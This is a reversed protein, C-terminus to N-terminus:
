TDLWYKWGIINFQILRRSAQATEDLSLPSSSDRPASARALQASWEQSCQLKQLLEKTTEVRGARLSMVDTPFWNSDHDELGPANVGGGQHESATVFLPM